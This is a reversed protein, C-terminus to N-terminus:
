KFKTGQYEADGVTYVDLAGVSDGVRIGETAGECNGVDL